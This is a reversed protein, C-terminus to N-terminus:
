PAIFPLCYIKYKFYLYKFKQLTSYVIEFDIIKDKVRV